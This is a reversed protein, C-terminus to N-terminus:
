LEQTDNFFQLNKPMKQQKSISIIKLILIKLKQSEFRIKNRVRINAWKSHGANRAFDLQHIFANCLKLRRLM